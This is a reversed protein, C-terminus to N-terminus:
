EIFRGSEMVPEEDARITPKNLVFDVHISAKNVGGLHINNGIALHATGIAKEDYISWGVPKIGYNTGMGLEGIRDKGGKAEKLLKSFADSGEAAEFNVIRGKEFQLRLGKLGYERHEDIVLIGNASTELPAVYVEGGPVDVGCEKGTSYCDELTGGEVRARRSKINLQLDTGNAHSVHILKTEALRSALNSGTERLRSYDVKVGNIFAALFELYNIRLAQVYTPSPLNVLLRPKPKAAQDVADWFSYAAKRIERPFRSVDEFQSLWIIANSKEILSHVHKLIVASLNQATESSKLFFNEDFAWLNPHAGIRQSELMIYEALVKNHAGCIILVDPRKRLCAVNTVIAHASEKLAVEWYREPEDGFL